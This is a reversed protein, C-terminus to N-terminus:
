KEIDHSISLCFISISNSNWKGMSDFFPHCWPVGKKGGQSKKNGAAVLFSFAAFNITDKLCFSESPKMRARYIEKLKLFLGFIFRYTSNGRVQIDNKSSELNALLVM